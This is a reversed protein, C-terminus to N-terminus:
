NIMKAMLLVQLFGAQEDYFGRELKGEVQFDFKQYLHIARENRAQVTLELRRLISEKEAWSILEAMMASGLGLGWYAQLISIGLEGIHQIPAEQGAIVRAIGIIQKGALAVILTNNTSAYIDALQEQEFAETMGDNNGDVLLYSTEQGLKAMVKMIEAADTPIAQRITVEEDSM